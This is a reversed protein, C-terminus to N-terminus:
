GLEHRPSIYYNLLLVGYNVLTYHTTYKRRGRAGPLGLCELVASIYFGAVFIGSDLPQSSWPDVCMIAIM